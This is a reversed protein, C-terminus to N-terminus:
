QHKSRKEIPKSSFARGLHRYLTDFSVMLICAAGVMFGILAPYPQLCVLSAMVIIGGSTSPVGCFYDPDSEKKNLTFYILRCITFCSFLVGLVVGEAGAFLFYLACGPAIGYTVADAIDDAYVGIRTGGWKRAAFGDFGDFLAGLMLLLLGLTFHQQSAAVISGVGCLFNLLSLFDAIHRTLGM